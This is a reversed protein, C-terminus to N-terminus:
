VIHEPVEYKKHIANTREKDIQNLQAFLKSAKHRPAHYEAKLQSRKETLDALKEQLSAIETDLDVFAQKYQQNEKALAEYEAFLRENEIDQKDQQLLKVRKAIVGIRAPITLLKQYLTTDEFDASQALEGEISQQEKKLDREQQRLAEIEAQVADLTTSTM